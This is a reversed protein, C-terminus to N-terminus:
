FVREGELVLGEASCGEEDLSAEEWEWEGTWSVDGLSARQAGQGQEKPVKDGGDCM